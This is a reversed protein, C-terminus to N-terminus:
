EHRRSSSITHMPSGNSGGGYNLAPWYWRYDPLRRAWNTVRRASKLHVFLLIWCVLLLLSELAAMPIWLPIRALRLGWRRVSFSFHFNRLMRREASKPILGDSLKRPKPITM